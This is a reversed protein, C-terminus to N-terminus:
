FGLEKLKIAGALTEEVVPKRMGTVALANSRNSSSSSRNNCNNCKRKCALAASRAIYERQVKHDQKRETERM